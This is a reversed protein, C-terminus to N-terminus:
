PMGKELISIIGRIDGAEFGYATEGPYKDVIFGPREDRPGHCALCAQEVFIPASYRTYELGDRSVRDLKGTISRDTAFMEIMEAEEATARNGPNRYKVAAHRIILGEKRSIEKVRKGVAGCVGKFTEPTIETEPVILSRALESRLGTIEAAYARAAEKFGVGEAAAPSAISLLVLLAFFKRM